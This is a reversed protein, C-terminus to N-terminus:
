LIAFPSLSRILTRKSASEPSLGSMERPGSLARKAARRCRGSSNCFRTNTGACVHNTSRAMPSEFSVLTTRCASKNGAPVFIRLRVAIRVTSRGDSPWKTADAVLDDIILRFDPFATAYAQLLASAGDLGNLVGDPTHITVTPAFLEPVLARNKANWHDEIVRRVVAKNQESM